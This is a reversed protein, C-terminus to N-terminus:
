EKRVGEHIGQHLRRIEEAKETIEEKTLKKNDTIIPTVQKKHFESFPMFSKKDMNPYLSIWMDWVKEEQEKERAKHILEIGDVWFMNNVYEINGYRTLLM